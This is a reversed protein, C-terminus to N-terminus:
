PSTRHLTHSEILYQNEDLLQRWGNRTGIKNTNILLGADEESRTLTIFVAHLPHTEHIFLEKRHLIPPNPRNAYNTARIRLAKM